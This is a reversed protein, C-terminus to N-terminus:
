MEMLLMLSSFPIILLVANFVEDGLSKREEVQQDQLKAADLIGTQKIIRWQEEEPIEILPKQPLTQATTESPLKESITNSNAKSGHRRAM